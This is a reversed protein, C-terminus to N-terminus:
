GLGTLHHRFSALRTGNGEGGARLTFFRPTAIVQQVLIPDGFDGRASVTNLNAESPSSFWNWLEATGGFGM